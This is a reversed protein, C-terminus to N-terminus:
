LFYRQLELSIKQFFALSIKSVARLSIRSLVELPMRMSAEISTGLHVAASLEVPVICLNM